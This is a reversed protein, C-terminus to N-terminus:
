RYEESTLRIITAIDVSVHLYNIIYLLAYKIM